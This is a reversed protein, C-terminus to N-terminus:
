PRNTLTITIINVCNSQIVAGELLGNGGWFGDSRMASPRMELGLSCGEALQYFTTWGHSCGVSLSYVEVQGNTGMIASSIGQAELFKGAEAEKMGIRLQSAAQIGRSVSALNTWSTPNIARPAAGNTPRAQGKAAWPLCAVIVMIGLIKM